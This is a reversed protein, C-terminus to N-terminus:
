FLFNIKKAEEVEEIKQEKIKLLMNLIKEIEILYNLEEEQRELKWEERQGKLFEIYPINNIVNLYSEFLNNTGIAKILITLGDLFDKQQDEPLAKLIEIKKINDLILKIDRLKLGNLEYNTKDFDM